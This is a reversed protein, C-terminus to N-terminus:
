KAASATAPTEDLLPVLSPLLAPDGLEGIALATRRRVDLDPDLALRELAAVGSPVHLRALSIAATWSSRDSACMMSM